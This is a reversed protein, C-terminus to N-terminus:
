PNEVIAYEGALLLFSFPLSPNWFMRNRTDLIYYGGFFSFRDILIVRLLLFFIIFNYLAM